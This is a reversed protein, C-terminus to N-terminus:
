VLVSYGCTLEVQRKQPRVTSESSCCAYRRDACALRAMMNLKAVDSESPRPRGGILISKLPILTETTQIMEPWGIEPVRLSCYPFTRALVTVRRWAARDSKIKLTRSIFVGHKLISGRWTLWCLTGAIPRLSSGDLPM